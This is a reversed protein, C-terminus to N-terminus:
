ESVTMYQINEKVADIMGSKTYAIAQRVANEAIENSSGHAKIVPKAIGLFPAGGIKDQNFVERFDDYGKQM